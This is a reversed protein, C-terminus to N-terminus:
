LALRQPVLFTVAMPFLHSVTDAYRARVARTEQEIERPIKVIRAELAFINRRYQERESTDFLELQVYDPQRLEAVITRELEQLIETINTEDKHAREALLTELSSFRDDM